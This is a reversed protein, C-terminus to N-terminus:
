LAVQPLLRDALAAAAAAVQPEQLLGAHAAGELEVIQLDPVLGRWGLADDAKARGTRRRLLVVGAGALPGPVYRAEVSDYIERVSLPPLREPWARGRALRWRLLALRMRVWLRQALLRAGDGPRGTAGPRAADLLAVMAVAEGAAQLQRAMEFAIVGGAALGGLRYPGQPQLRRVQATYDRALQPISGAALPVGPLRCPGIGYVSLAGPLHQALLRYPLTEGDGDHVLFLNLPGGAKLEVLLSAALNARAAQASRLTRALARITPAAELTGPRLRVGFCHAIQAFLRAALLPNGGLAFYNDEVGLADINLLEQWLTLL